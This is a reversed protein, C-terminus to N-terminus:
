TPTSSHSSKTKDFRENWDGIPGDWRRFTFGFHEVMPPPGHVNHGRKRANFPREGLSRGGLAKISDLEGM